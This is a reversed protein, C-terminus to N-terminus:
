VLLGTSNNTIAGATGAVHTGHGAYDMPNNDAEEGDEEPAAHQNGEGSVGTVFDWGRIDDIYGNGDDDVEAMGNWEDWNIWINGNTYPSTSGIDPHDWDVGTDIIALIVNSDGTVFDWAEPANIKSIAWQNTAQFEPDNPEEDLENIYTYGCYEILSNKEIENKADQIKQSNDLHIIYYRTLDVLMSGRIPTKEIPFEREIRIVSYKKFLSDIVPIGISISGTISSISFNQIESKFNIILINPVIEQSFLTITPIKCLLIITLLIKMFNM